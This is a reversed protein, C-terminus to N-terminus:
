LLYDKLNICGAFIAINRATHGDGTSFIVSLPAVSMGQRLYPRGVFKCPETLVCVVSTFLIDVRGRGHPRLPESADIYESFRAARRGPCRILQPINCRPDCLEPAAVSGSLGPVRWRRVRRVSASRGRGPGPSVASGGSRIACLRSGSATCGHPRCRRM